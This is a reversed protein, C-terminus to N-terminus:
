KQYKLLARENKVLHQYGNYCLRSEKWGSIKMFARLKTIQFSYDRPDNKNTPSNPYTLICIKKDVQELGVM